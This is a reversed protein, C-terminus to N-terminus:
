LKKCRQTPTPMPGAPTSPGALLSSAPCCFVKTKPTPTGDRGPPQASAHPIERSGLACRLGPSHQARGAAAAPPFAVGQIRNGPPSRARTGTRGSFRAGTAFGSSPGARSRSTECVRATKGRRQPTKHLCRYFPPVGGRPALIETDMRLGPLVGPDFISSTGTKRNGIIVTRGPNSPFPDQVVVVVFIANKRM